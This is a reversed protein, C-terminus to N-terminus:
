RASSAVFFPPLTNTTTGRMSASSALATVM